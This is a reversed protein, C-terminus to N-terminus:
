TAEGRGRATLKGGGCGDWHRCAGTSAEGFTGTGAGKGSTGSHRCGRDGPGGQAQVAVGQRAGVRVAEAGCGGSVRQSQCLEPEEGAWPMSCMTAGTGAWGLLMEQLLPLELRAGSVSGPGSSSGGGSNSGPWVVAVAHEM